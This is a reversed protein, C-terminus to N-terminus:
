IAAPSLPGASSAAFASNQRRVPLGYEGARLARRVLRQLLGAPCSPKGLNM